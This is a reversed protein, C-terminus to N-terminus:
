KTPPFYTISEQFEVNIKGALSCFEFEWNEVPQKDHIHQAGHLLASLQPSLTVPTPLFESFLSGISEGEMACSYENDAIFVGVACKLGHPHRYLCGTYPLAYDEPCDNDDDIFSRCGQARLHNLMTDFVDQLPANDINKLTIM